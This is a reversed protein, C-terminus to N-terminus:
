APSRLRATRQWVVARRQAHTRAPMLRRVDYAGITGDKKRCADDSVDFLSVKRAAILEDALLGDAGSLMGVQYLDLVSPRVDAARGVNAFGM